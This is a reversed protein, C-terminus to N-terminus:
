ARTGTDGSTPRIFRFKLSLFAQWRDDQRTFEPLTSALYGCFYTSSTSSRQTQWDGVCLACLGSQTAAWVDVLGWARAKLAATSGTDAVSTMYAESAYAPTTALGEQTCLEPSWPIVEATLEREHTTLTGAFSYVSGGATREEAGSRQPAWVGGYLGSFWAVYWPQRTAVHTSAATTITATYGLALGVTTQYLDTLKCTAGTCVITVLGTDGDLTVAFSVGGPLGTAANLSTQLQRVADRTTGTSPALSVRYTAAPITATYPTGSITITFTQSAAVFPVALMSLLQSM